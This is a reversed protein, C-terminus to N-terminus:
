PLNDNNNEPAPLIQLTEPEAMNLKNRAEQEVRGHATLASKELILRGYEQQLLLNQKELLQWENVLQRHWHSAAIQAAACGGVCCWLIFLVAPSTLRKSLDPGNAM